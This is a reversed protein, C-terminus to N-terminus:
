GFWSELNQGTKENHQIVGVVPYGLWNPPDFIMVISPFPAPTLKTPDAMNKFKVRGKIFLLRSVHGIIKHFWRTDTRAPVLLVTITRETCSQQLDGWWSENHAKEAWKEIYTYPPNIFVSKGRWLKSLGDDEQTYFNKCKANEITACPDLNFHYDADLRNYLWDPTVWEDTLHSFLTKRDNDNM